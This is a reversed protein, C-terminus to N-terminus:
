LWHKILATVDEGDLKEQSRKKTLFAMAKAHGEEIWEEGIPSESPSLV